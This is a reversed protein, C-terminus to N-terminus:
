LKKVRNKLTRESSLNSFAEIVNNIIASDGKFPNGGSLYLDLIKNIYIKREEEPINESKLLLSGFIQNEEIDSELLSKLLENNM